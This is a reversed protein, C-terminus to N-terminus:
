DSNAHNSGAFPIDQFRYIKLNEMVEQGQMKVKQSTRIALPWGTSPRLRFVTREELQFLQPLEESQPMPKGGPPQGQRNSYPYYRLLYYLEEPKPMPRGDLIEYSVKMVAESDPEGVTVIEACDETQGFRTLQVSLSGPISKGYYPVPIDIEFLLPDADEFTLGFPFHIVQIYQIYKTAFVEWMKQFQQRLKDPSVTGM